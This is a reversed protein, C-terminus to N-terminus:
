RRVSRILRQITYVAAVGALAGIVNLSVDWQLHRGPVGLKGIEALVAILACSISAIGFVTRGRHQALTALLAASALLGMVFFVGFHAFLRLGAHFQQSDLQLGLKGLLDLLFRAVLQSFQSTEEGTQWSLYLCFVLWLLTLFWLLIIPPAHGTRNLCKSM